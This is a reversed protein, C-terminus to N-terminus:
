ALAEPVADLIGIVAADIPLRANGCAERAADGYTLMVVSGTGAGLPDVAVVWTSNGDGPELSEVLVFRLGALRHDLASCVLSQRITGITM